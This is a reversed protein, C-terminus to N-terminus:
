IFFINFFPDIETLGFARKGPHTNKLHTSFLSTCSKMLSHSPTPPKTPDLTPFVYAKAVM